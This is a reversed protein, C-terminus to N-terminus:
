GYNAKLEYLSEINNALEGANTFSEIKEPKSISGFFTTVKQIKSMAELMENISSSIGHDSLERILLCCLRFALVCSFIHVAIKEDTWHFIPRVTLHSTNKMQRFAAEVHWASRYMNIIMDTSLDFRDTFFATVGLRTKRINELAGDDFEYNLRVHGSREYIEYKFVEKMYETKLINEVSKSVSEVTPKRGKTIVNESRKLLNEEVEKLKLITKDVNIKMGQLQGEELEPNHSIVTVIDRAFVKSETRYATVGKLNTATIPIYKERPVAFLEPLQNKKL